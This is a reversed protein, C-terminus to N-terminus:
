GGSTSELQRLDQRPSIPPPPHADPRPPGLDVPRQPDPINAM